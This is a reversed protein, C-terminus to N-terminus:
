GLQRSQCTHRTICVVLEPMNLLLTDFCVSKLSKLGLSIIQGLSKLNSGHSIVRSKRSNAFDYGFFACSNSSNFNLSKKQLKGFMTEWIM